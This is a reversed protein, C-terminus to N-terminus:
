KVPLSQIAIIKRSNFLDNSNSRKVKGFINNLLRSDNINVLLVPIINGKYKGTEDQIRKIDTLLKSYHEKIKSELKRHTTNQKYMKCEVIYTEKKITYMCDKEIDNLFLQNTKCRIRNRKLLDLTAKLLMKPENVM